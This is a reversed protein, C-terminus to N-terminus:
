SKGVMAAVVSQRQVEEYGPPPEAPVGGGGQPPPPPGSDEYAPLDELHVEASGAERAQLVREKVREFMGYFDFAGGDKFVLKLEIASTAPPIGGGSVPQVSASWTNPGFFPAAVRSDLLNPIPASFSEFNTPTSSPTPTYIVRQNTIHVVGSSTTYTFSGPSTLTFSTRPPSQYLTREHPLSIFTHPTSGLMVWNLSM